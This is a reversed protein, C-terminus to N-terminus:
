SEVRPSFLTLQETLHCAAYREPEIQRYPPETTRCVAEAYPCRPHFRCGPPPNVPSPVDGTLLIRKKRYAPDPVPVASILAETYPHKPRRFLDGTPATEVIRGLYMVMVRDTIYRVVALDHTIFLYTLDHEAQLNKLLQLVQAQISVDLASVSEDAIILRPRLILARAIAIRQRQGGSFQHPYRGTQGPNLGVEAMVQRIKEMREAPTGPNHVLLPEGIISGVTMRENLSSYPDQYVIQMQRRLEKVVQPPAHIVDITETRGNGGAAPRHFRIEGATPELLRLLTRGVTTKGCGSEGVLGLVEGRRLQMDIGDVAHVRAVERRFIGKRVPFHKKLSVVELLPAVSSL